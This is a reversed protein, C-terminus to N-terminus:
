KHYTYIHKQLSNKSSYTKGCTTCPHAMGGLHIETHKKLNQKTSSAKGCVTCVWLGDKREIMDDAISVDHSFEEAENLTAVSTEINDSNITDEESFSYGEHESEVKVSDTEVKQENVYNEKNELGKDWNGM